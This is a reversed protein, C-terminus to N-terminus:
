GTMLPITKVASSYSDRELSDGDKGINNNNKVVTSIHPSAIYQECLTDLMICRIELAKCAEETTNDDIVLPFNSSSSYFIASSDKFGVSALFRNSSYYRSFDEMESPSFETIVIARCRGGFSYAVIGTTSLQCRKLICSYDGGLYHNLAATSLIYNTIEM